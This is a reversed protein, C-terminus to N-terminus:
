RRAIVCIESGQVLVHAPEPASSLDYLVAQMTTHCRTRYYQRAKVPAVYIWATAVVIMAVLIGAKM